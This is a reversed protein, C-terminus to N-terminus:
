YGSTKLTDGQWKLLKDHEKDKKREKADYLKRDIQLKSKAPDKQKKHQGAIQM